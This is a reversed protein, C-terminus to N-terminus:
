SNEHDAGESIQRFAKHLCGLSGAIVQIHQAIGARESMKLPASTSKVGERLAGLDAQLREITALAASPDACEAPIPPSGSRQTHTPVSSSHTIACLPRRPLEQGM